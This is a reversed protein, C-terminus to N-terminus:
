FKFRLYFFKILEEFKSKKVVSYNNKFFSKINIRNLRQMILTRVNFFCIYHLLLFIM